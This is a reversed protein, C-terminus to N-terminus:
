KEFRYISEGKPSNTMYYVEGTQDEGFSMVPVENSIVEVNGTVKKTRPDYSLAWIKGTVYDGYIYKGNLTEIRSSRCVRGGTISRGIRHDYEWVPEIPEASEKAAERGFPHSGERVSWGYNGGRVILDVEEWLEQGVDGCWLDGTKSDFAIRWPNRMGYAFIEARADKTGVFPNDTPIGYKLDGTQTNVDIRLISGLWTQLNQGNADPDNRDGGDGLAIYLFGDPGFEIAGGNHNKFPQAITMLVVESDPDARNPDDSSVKFGSVISQDKGKDSYYVYFQGNNKYDPHMALGLLGQENAGQGSWLEVQESLDLFLKAESVDQRNEFVYIPGGQDAAFLRNTDDRAYTLELIRMQRQRGNEDVPEWNEFKLNPFAVTGRLNLKGDIPQPVSGNPGLERLKINRFAVENGHDQLCIFGKEAKGFGELNAFKSEALRKNWDKDGIKFSYYRIGNMVVECQDEAIRLYLQNWFGVPRTADIEGDRQVAWSPISPKYLQYLWGAKESDHGDVNDQIQIEPGTHWPPGDTELVKFMLGSNGGQSIKYELSLKEGCWGFTVIPIARDTTAFPVTSYDDLARAPVTRVKLTEM